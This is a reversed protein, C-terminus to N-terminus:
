DGRVERPTAATPPRMFGIMTGSLASGTLLIAAGALLFAILTLPQAYVGCVALIGLVIVALGAMAQMGTSGAAMESAVIRVIPASTEFRTAISPSTLLRWVALSSLLLAAGFAIVAAGTLIPAYLGVLALVGLVVGAVGVLFLVSIGGGSAALREDAAAMEVQAFESLMAGGQILLAAGFVITAISALAEPRVGALGVIALVIAAVGGLADAFGGYATTEHAMPSSSYAVAM